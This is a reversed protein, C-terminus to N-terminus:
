VGAYEDSTLAERVIRLYHTIDKDATWIQDPFAGPWDTHGDIAVRDCPIYLTDGNHWDHRFVLAAHGGKPRKDPSLPASTDCDWSSATPAWQPYNTLNFRLYFEHRAGEREAARVAIIAHPWDVSVLRWHGRSEGDRFRAGNLHARFVREDPTGEEATM